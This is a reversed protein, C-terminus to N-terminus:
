ALALAEREALIESVTVFEYGRRRLEPIIYATANVTETRTDLSGGESYPPQGWPRGDHLLIVAGDFSDLVTRRTIERSDPVEWDCPVVDAGISQMALAEGVARAVETDRLYPARYVRPYTSVVEEIAMSCDAIEHFTDYKSLGELNKHSMTHNGIEHGHKKIRRLIKERGEIANGCVFFTAKAHHEALVALVYPTWQSPGDDYTLAVKM